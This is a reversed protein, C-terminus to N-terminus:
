QQVEQVPFWGKGGLSKRWAAVSELYVLTCQGADTLVCGYRTLRGNPEILGETILSRVAMRDGDLVEHRQAIRNLIPLMVEITM